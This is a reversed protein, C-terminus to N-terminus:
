ESPAPAECSSSVSGEPTVKPALRVLKVFSREDMRCLYDVVDGLTPLAGTTWKSIERLQCLHYRVSREVSSEDLVRVYAAQGRPVRVGANAGRPIVETTEAVAGELWTAIRIMERSEPCADPLALVADRHAEAQFMVLAGLDKGYRGRRDPASETQAHVDSRQVLFSRGTVVNRAVFGFSDPECAAAIAADLTEFKEVSPINMDNMGNMDGDMDRAVGDEGALFRLTRVGRADLTECLERLTKGATKQVCADAKDRVTSHDRAFLNPSTATALVWGNDDTAARYLTLVSGRYARSLEVEAPNDRLFRSLYGNSADAADVGDISVHDPTPPSSALVEGTGAHIVAFRIERSLDSQVRRRKSTQVYERYVHVLEPHGPVATCLFPPYEKADLLVAKAAAVPDTEGAVTNEEVLASAIKTLTPMTPVPMTPVPMTTTM